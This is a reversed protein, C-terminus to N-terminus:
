KRVWICTNFCDLSCGVSREFGADHVAKRFPEPWAGTFGVKKNMRIASRHASCLLQLAALDVQGPTGFELWLEDVNIIAKILQMRLEEAEALTVDGDLVLTGRNNAERYSISM